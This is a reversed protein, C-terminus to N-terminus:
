WCNVKQGIKTSWTGNSIIRCEAYPCARGIPIDKYQGTALLSPVKYWTVVNTETPGYLNFFCAHPWHSQLAKLPEVSFVEGAYLVLRLQRHDFRTLKGYTLILKLLTPTTYIVSIHKEDMLTSLMLPNKATKQDMLVLCAGKLLSVYLDFVSLDFHFPALSSLVDKESIEFQEAGWEVFSLANKHTIMVGKPLGTSGSTYLMYAMDAPFDLQKTVTYYCLVLDFSFDPLEILEVKFSAEAIFCERLSADILVAKVQCDDLIYINRSMPAHADVPIYAAKSALIALIAAASDISKPCLIGIRDKSQIGEEALIYALKKVHEALEDYTMANGGPQDLAIQGSFQNVSRALIESLHDM